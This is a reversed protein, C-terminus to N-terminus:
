FMDADSIFSDLPSLTSTYDVEQFLDESSQNKTFNHTESKKYIARNLSSKREKLLSERVNAFYGTCNLTFKKRFTSCVHNCADLASTDEDLWDCSDINVKPKGFNKMLTEDSESKVSDVISTSSGDASFKDWDNFYKSCQPNTQLESNNKVHTISSPKSTVVVENENDRKIVESAKAGTTIIPLLKQTLRREPILTVHTYNVTDKIASLFSSGKCKKDTRNKRSEKKKKVKGAKAHKKIRSDNQDFPKPSLQVSDLECERDSLREKEFVEEFPNVKTDFFESRPGDNIFYKSRRM